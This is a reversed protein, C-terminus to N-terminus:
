TDKKKKAQTIGTSQEPTLGRLVMNVAAFLARGKNLTEQWEMEPVSDAVVGAGAQIYLRQDKIVGTRIAIAQDMGGNFGMYGIAGGYIGRKVPEVQNILQMAKPKPSGSLTGAPLTVGLVDMLNCDERLRGSVNSVLHMVHSYREVVMRDTVEVTRPEALQEIDRIGLEILMEHESVEKPDALLEQELALDEEPTRGRPRTGAIPRVTVVGQEVRSLIEPSSGAIYFDELDLFYLYPSPNLHRLARYLSMPEAQFPVWMRQSPVVQEVEGQAIREKLDAVVAKFTERPFESVFASEDLPDGLVEDEQQPVPSRLKKQLTEIRQEAEEVAGPAKPDVLVIIFLSGKLNDFVVVEESRMLLIDPVGLTDEADKLNLEPMFYAASDYSFYGVLGGNFRPLGPIEPSLFRQRYAEIFALPDQATQEEEVGDRCLTIRGQQVKLVEKAPLGIISYRGRQEGGQVSEFLYSYPGQALKQYASVPTDLDALVERVVPVRAYGQAAYYAFQEPSM